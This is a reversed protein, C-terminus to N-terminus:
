TFSVPLRKTEIQRQHVNPRNLFAFSLTEHVEGICGLNGLGICLVSSLDHSHAAHLATWKPLWMRRSLPGMRDAEEPLSFCKEPNITPTASSDIFSPLDRNAASAVSFRGKQGTM